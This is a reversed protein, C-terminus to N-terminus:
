IRRVTRIVLCRVPNWGRARAARRGNVWLQRFNDLNVIAKFRGNADATWGTVSIGGSLVPTEGKAALWIVGSHQPGLVLPESLQYTGGHLIIRDGSRAADYAKALPDGPSITIDKAIAISALLSAAFLATSFAPKM